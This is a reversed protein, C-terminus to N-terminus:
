EIAVRYSERVLRSRHAMDDYTPVVLDAHQHLPAFDGTVEGFRSGGFAALASDGPAECGHTATSQHM